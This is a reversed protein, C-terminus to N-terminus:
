LMHSNLLLATVSNPQNCKSSLLWSDSSDEYFPALIIHAKQAQVSILRSDDQRDDKVGTSYDLNVNLSQFEIFLLAM